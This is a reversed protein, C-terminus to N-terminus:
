EKGVKKWEEREFVRLKRRLTKVAWADQLLDTKLDELESPSIDRDENDSDGPDSTEDDEDSPAVGPFPAEPQQDEPENYFEELKDLCDLCEFFAGACDNSGGTYLFPDKRDTDNPVKFFKHCSFCPLYTTEPKRDEGYFTVYSHFVQFSNTRKKIWKRMKKPKIPTRDFESRKLAFLSRSREHDPMWSKFTVSHAKSDDEVSRSEPEM